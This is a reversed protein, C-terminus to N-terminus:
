TVERFTDFNFVNAHQKGLSIVYGRSSQAKIGWTTDKDSEAMPVSTKSVKAMGGMNGGLSLM